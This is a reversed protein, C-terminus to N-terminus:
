FLPEFLLEVAVKAWLIQVQRGMFSVLAGMDPVVMIGIAVGFKDALARITKGKSGVTHPIVEQSIPLELRTARDVGDM